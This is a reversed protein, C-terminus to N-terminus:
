IGADDRFGGQAEGAFLFEVDFLFFADLLKVFSEEENSSFWLVLNFVGLFIKLFM